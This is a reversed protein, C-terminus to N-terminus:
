AFDFFILRVGSSIAASRSSTLSSYRHFFVVRHEVVQLGAQLLGHGNALALHRWRTYELNLCHIHLCRAFFRVHRLRFEGFGDVDTDARQLVPLLPM